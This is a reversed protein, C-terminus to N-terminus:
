WKIDADWKHGTYGLNNDEEPNELKVAKRSWWVPTKMNDEGMKALQTAYNKNSSRLVLPYPFRTPHVGDNRIAEGMVLLPYGTRRYEHWSEYGVTFLSVYKQTIIIETTNFEFISTFYCEFVSVVTSM